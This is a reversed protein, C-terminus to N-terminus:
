KGAGAAPFITVDRHAWGIWVADGVTPAVMDGTAPLAVRLTTLSEAQPGIILRSQAGDFLKTQVIGPMRIPLEAVEAESRGVRILEPRIFIDAPGPDLRTPLPHSGWYEFAIAGESITGSLRNNDGIFGAVFASRPHHYLDEPTGVQEFRGHNMVAIVDSMALAESQDHTIYVFTTGFRMQLQKLEIKMEERLKLDLAGLPEDLLLVAPDLVLSRALAVRQRQGGSLQGVKRNAFGPLRVRELIEDVKNLVAKGTEGRCRLGFAVNEGVSMMPFLALNQFVLNIPRKHAPVAGMDKGAIRLTGADPEQFGAIMRLLTTKGCGSPGLISFFKGAPVEFSVSEVGGAAFRKSLGEIQLHSM